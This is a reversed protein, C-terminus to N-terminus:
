IEVVCYILVISKQTIVCCTSGLLPCDMHASASDLKQIVSWLNWLVLCVEQQGAARNQWKWAAYYNNAKYQPPFDYRGKEWVYEDLRENRNWDKMRSSFETFQLPQVVARVTLQRCRVTFSQTWQWLLWYPVQPPCLSCVIWPVSWSEDTQIIRCSRCHVYSSM